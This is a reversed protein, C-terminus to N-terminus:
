EADEGMLVDDLQGLFEGLESESLGSEAFGAAADDGAAAACAGALAELAHLCDDALKEIEGPRHLSPNYSWNFRLRGEIVVATVDLPYPRPDAPDAPPGSDDWSLEFPADAGPEAMRGLYNFRLAPVPLSRLEDAGTGTRGYRLLGFGAGSDPLEDIEALRGATRRVAKVPSDEAVATLRIPYVTTFWGVTRSLDAQPGVADRGHSELDLVMDPEGTWQAIAQALATLLLELARNGGPSRLLDATTAPSAAKSVSHAQGYRGPDTRLATGNGLASLTHAWYPLQEALEASEARAALREAWDRFATTKAPLRVALGQEAQAYGTALDELLIGWSVGDVALHHAVLLLRDERGMRAHLAKLLCGEELDIGTQVQEALAAFATAQKGAPLASLDVVRLLSPEHGEPGANELSWGGEGTPVLRLRLADHHEMLAHLAVRLRGADVSGRWRLLMAQNYHHRATLRRGLFWRQIPTPSVAGTVPGQSARAAPQAYPLRGALQAITPYQFLLKPTLALGARAAQAVVQISLISDGGLEFFDDQRGVRDLRLVQAWITALTEEVPGHAEEPGGGREPRGDRGGGSVPEPLARRDLKGNATLPLRDLAVFAAPVMYEPLLGACHARLDHEGAGEWVGYAVLRIAGAEGARAIVAVERVGPHGRLVAAVEGPEVRFGRVKVQDDTRGSFILSGNALRRARDGTRYLCGGTGSPDPVFRQATLGPQGLYGRAVSPGGAFVEGEVWAPVPCMAEDLLYVPGEALPRGIPVPGATRVPGQPVEYALVGVTAEAPGYHNVVRCSPALERVRGVLEWDLAEGGIVLVDRPLVDVADEGDLLARLHSPTIKLCDVPFRRFHGALAVPDAAVDAPVIHLTGGTCLAPYIATNGLDAALTSVSAYCGGPPLGLTGLAGRLYAHLNAHTVGVAKPVGTSGSTFITYALNEPRAGADPGDQPEAPLGDPPAGCRPDVVVMGGYRDGAAPLEAVLVGAGATRLLEAQREAPLAPDLPLYAGGAKMIALLGVVFSVSRVALLGVPTDPRVGLRRLQSALRGARENVEQYSLMGDGAVVATAQPVRMAQEAFLEHVCRPPVGAITSAPAAAASDGPRGPRRAMPLRACDASPEDLAAVLLATYMEAVLGIQDEALLATNYHVALAVSSGAEIGTLCLSFPEAHAAASVLRWTEDPAVPRSEVWEFALRAAPGDGPAAADHFEQHALLEQILRDTCTLEDTFNQGETFRALYPLAQALAGVTGGMEEHPRNAAVLAILVDEGSIRKFLLQWAALMVCRLPLGAQGALARAKETVKTELPLPMAAPRFAGVAAPQEFPLPESVPVAPAHDAWFGRGAATEDAALLDHQWEAVDAYQLVEDPGGPGPGEACCRHLEGALVHLSVTDACGAPLTLLLRSRGGPLAALDARLLPGAALDFPQWARQARLAAWMAAWEGDGAHSVDHHAYDFLPREDIVQLPIDVGPLSRLVTRLAEHRRSLRDLAARVEATGPGAAIEIDAQAHYRDGPGAQQLLWLRKQQPSLRYGEM